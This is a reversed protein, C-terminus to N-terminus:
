KLELEDLTINSSKTLNRIIPRIDSLISDKEHQVAEIDLDWTGVTVIEQAKVSDSLALLQDGDDALLHPRM